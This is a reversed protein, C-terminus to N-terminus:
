FLRYILNDEYSVTANIQSKIIIKQYGKILDYNSLKRQIIFDLYDILESRTSSFFIFPPRVLQMLRLFEVMGFYTDNAYMGQQTCVYPPDLVLLCKSNNLHPQILQEFDKKVIELGELYDASVSFDSLRIRNYLTKKELEDVTNTFNGSFLIWTCVTKIDVFGPFNQLCNIVAQKSTPSLKKSRPTQSLIKSLKQRMRNTDSIHQLRLHYDDFDNYIVRAQPKTHIAVHALLGSGGFADVITWGDGDDAISTNLVNIFHTVFNRKQGIFPLPAQKYIKKM